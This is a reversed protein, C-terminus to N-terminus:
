LQPADTRFPSAPLGAGNFLNAGAPNDAWIYCQGHNGQWRWRNAGVPNNAWAYRVAVPAKVHPHSVVVTDGAIKANAWVWQQDAGTIAFGKLTDDQAVLGGETHTFTIVVERGAIKCSAPLPGAWAVGRKGYVTALAWLALRHGVEQKNRPHIDKADGTGLAVAMGTSPLKLTQLMGERVVAWGSEEVPKTQPALWEPLQVWAFPFDCGWRTRWDQILTALQLGYVKSGGNSEGQYWLGGRLAYPILPAIKGNFLSGPYNSSLRPETRKGPQRPAPKGAAKAQAAAAQWAALQKEYEAQVQEPSWDAQQKEFGALLPKLRAQAQQAAWSTWAEIPTGGVSSNILGIAGGTKQHIERGFFYATASFGGVTNASCVVWHGACEDRPVPAPGSSVQFARIRPFNAAMKEQAFDKAGSVGMAMNSQGSCLWVDGILVDNITIINQGKVTLTVPAGATLAALKVLWKGDQGATVKKTQGAIAVTVEEGAAAWGWVPVQTGAQLVMHDSFIAPLKVDAVVRPALAVVGALLIRTFIKM